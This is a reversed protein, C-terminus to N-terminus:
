VNLVLLLCFIDLNNCYTFIIFICLKSHSRLEMYSQYPFKDVSPHEPYATSYSLLDINNRRYFM